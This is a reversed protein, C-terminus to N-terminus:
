WPDKLCRVQRHLRRRNRRRFFLRIESSLRYYTALAPEPCVCALLISRACANRVPAVPPQEICTSLGAAQPFMGNAQAAMESDHAASTTGGSGVQQTCTDVRDLALQALEPTDARTTLSVLMAGAQADTETSGGAHLASPPSVATSYVMQPQQHTQFMSQLQAHCESGTQLVCLDQDPLAIESSVIVEHPLVQVPEVPQALMSSLQAQLEQQNAEAVPPSLNQIHVRCLGEDLPICHVAVDSPQVLMAEAQAHTESVPVPQILSLGAAIQTQLQQPFM